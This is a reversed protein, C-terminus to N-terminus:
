RTPLGHALALAAWATGAASIWQHYGFPFGSEMPRQVPFARTRVLWAGNAYQTKLLYQIGKRYVPDGAPMGAQEFAYLTIGTAYADPELQPLQGWGGGPRQQQAWHAAERKLGPADLGTWALGMLRMAYDEASAPKSSLLWARALRLRRATEQARSPIPYLTLTRIAMATRSITSSEMPPRTEFEPWSGDPMQRAAVLHSLAATTLDPKHGEAALAMAVYGITLEQGPPALGQMAEEGIPKYGGLIQRLNLDATKRDFPIGRARAAGTVQGLMTQNHCTVCARKAFVVPGTPLLAAVARELATRADATGEPAPFAEDRPTRAPKAGHKALLEIRGHDSRHMAWDLPTEGDRDTVNPDAGHQLLLEFTSLPTEDSAAANILPTRRFDGNIANADGGAALARAVLPTEQHTMLALDRPALVAGRDLLFELTPRYRRALASRRLLGPEKADLGLEVLYRVVGIDSSAAALALAGRGDRTKARADAGKALLLKLLEVTDPYSAAILFPTLGSNTSARNVDAGAELLLKVKHADPVAWLLATAGRSDAANPDAGRKLLAKVSAAGDMLVARMLPSPGSSQALSFAALSAVVTLMM